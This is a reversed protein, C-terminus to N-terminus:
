LGAPETPKTGETFSVGERESLVRVGRFGEAKLSSLAGGAAYQRDLSQRSFLAGLGGRMSREIVLCRGGVRLVRHVQQLTLPLGRRREIVRHLYVNDPHHYDDADGGYGLEGGLYEVLVRCKEVPDERQAARRAVEAGMADLARLYPRADLRPNEFRGLLILAREFDLHHRGCYRVLRRVVEDRDLELLLARAHSRTRPEDSRAAKALASRGLARAAAFERRLVSRVKTSDDGLLPLLLQVRTPAGREPQAERPSRKPDGLAAEGSAGVDKSHTRQKM